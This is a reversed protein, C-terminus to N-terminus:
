PNPHNGTRISWIFYWTAGLAAAIGGVWKAIRGMALIVKAGTKAGRFIETLDGTDASIKDLKDTVSRLVITNQALCDTVTAMQTELRAIRSEYSNAM